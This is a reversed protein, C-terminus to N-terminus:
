IPREGNDTSIRINERIRELLETTRRVTALIDAISCPKSLYQVTNFEDGADKMAESEDKASIVIVPRWKEQLRIRRNKIEKLVDFGNLKPMILDLLVIDPDERELKKLADEGDYAAIVVYGEKELRKVLIEVVCTNDDTVLIKYAM